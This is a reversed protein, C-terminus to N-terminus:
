RGSDSAVPSKFASGSEARTTDPLTLTFKAGQGVGESQVTLDGGMERAMLLCCHLGFGHGNKKSTFGQSFMKRIQEPSIGIGNDAVSIAVYPKGEVITKEVNLDIERAQADEPFAEISNKILNVLIQSVKGREMQVAIEQDGNVELRIGHKIFREANFNVADNVPVSVPLHEKTGGSKSMTQQVSIISKIHEVHRKIEQFRMEYESNERELEESLEALFEPIKEGRPDNSFFEVLQGKQESMLGALMKVGQVKSDQLSELVIGAGTNLSNLVNGVNHLVGNAIESKGAKRAAEILKKQLRRRKRRHMEEESIDRLIVIHSWRTRFEQDDDTLRVIQYEMPLNIGSPAHIKEKGKCLTQILNLGLERQLKPSIQNLRYEEERDELRAPIGFIEEFVRNAPGIHGHCDVAFISQPLTDLLRRQEDTKSNLENTREIVEQSVRDGFTQVQAYQRSAEKLEILQRRVSIISFVDAFVVWGAHELTRMLQPNLVGYISDPWYLGRLFHDAATVVTATVLVRYDRYFTLFALSGFVHFHSEIRGHTFHIILGSFMMQSIAVIQRMLQTGSIRYSMFLPFLAAGGGLFIAAYLHEHWSSSEKNWTYPSVVAALVICFVWQVCFLICFLSDTEKRSRTLYDEYYQAALQEEGLDNEAQSASRDMSMEKVKTRRVKRLRHFRLM